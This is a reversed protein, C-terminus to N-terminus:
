INVSQPIHSPKLHNYERRNQNRRDIVKEIDELKNVFKMQLERVGDDKFYFPGYHGLTTHYVSGLFTMTQAQRLAVDLPPFMALWDKERMTQGKQPAPQYGSLPVAPLYAGDTKQPFNVAAHQPGATFIAMTLLDMLEQKTRIMEFDGDPKQELFGQVKGRTAIELGWNQLEYDSLIKSNDSYYYNIYDTVWSKVAEWILYGDDRYPFQELIYRGSGDKEILGQRAMREPFFNARYQFSLRQQGILAYNSNIESGVLRDVSEDKQILKNIALSNIPLTGELHPNLLGYIPHDEHLHRRTAITIPEMVLHTFGLHTLMEHHSNHAAAAVVKAGKWNYGEDPSFVADRAPDQGCQIMIPQLKREGSRPIGLVVIPQYIYKKAQPHFGNSLLSLAEYDTYFIRGERLAIELNDSQFGPARNFRDQTLELKAPIETMKSHTAPNMGGVYSYGFYEDTLGIDLTYPKDFTQFLQEYEGIENPRGNPIIPGLDPNYHLFINKLDSNRFYGLIDLKSTQPIPNTFKYPLNDVVAETNKRISFLARVVKLTWISSAKDRQKYEKVIPASYTYLYEYENRVKELELARTPSGDPLTYQNM